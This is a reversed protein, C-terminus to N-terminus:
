YSFIIGMDNFPLWLPDIETIAKPITTNKPVAKSKDTM